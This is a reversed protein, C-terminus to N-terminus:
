LKRQAPAGISFRRIRFRRTEIGCMYGYLRFLLCNKPRMFDFQRPFDIIPSFCILLHIRTFLQIKGHPLVIRVTRERERGRGFYTHVYNRHRDNILGYVKFEKAVNPLLLEEANTRTRVNRFLHSKFLLSVLRPLYFGSSQETRGDRPFTYLAGREGRAM